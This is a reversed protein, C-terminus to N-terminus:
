QLEVLIFIRITKLDYRRGKVSLLLALITPNLCVITPKLTEMRTLIIRPSVLTNLAIIKSGIMLSVLIEGTITASHVMSKAIYFVDDARPKMYNIISDINNMIARHSLGIAKYDGSTGSSFLILKKIM